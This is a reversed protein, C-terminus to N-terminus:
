HRYTQMEVKDAGVRFTVAGSEDTRFVRCGIDELKALTDPHPFRSFGSDRCSIVCISPGVASLFAESSSTRSGHHPVVLVDSRLFEKRNRCLIEEGEKELDGTFLFATKGFSIKLVMSNNNLRSGSEPNSLAPEGPAPHLVQVQVGHIDRGEALDDPFLRRIKKSEIIDMLEAYSETEVRDGNSWFERPAFARAVFRLGNMHDAQPHSLVLYDITRIKFRWLAPAVVMRGVDFRDGSFGGGDILMKKGRPFEVLAASGQGVDLFTVRLDRHFCVHHLLYAADALILALAVCMGARAWRSRRFALALLMLAYLLVLEAPSPTMMWVSSGPVDSWFRILGMMGDAGLSALRLLAGAAAESVFLALVSLLGLPFVWFGLIPLTTVNAPVAVLPVQHFYYTTIPLLFVTAALSVTGLGLAHLYVRNLLTGGRTDPFLTKPFLGMLPPVFWLIGAVAMFSLQFSISFLAQPDLALVVVGALALTSWTERERGMVLSALFALVMVMARQSSVHFGSIIAYGVAPICALVAAVCRIDVALLLRSFCSLLWRFASFAIWAILGIHLGSVALVHGLGTRAFRERLAKDIGRPDGLILAQFFANSEPDLRKELLARVPRRIGEALVQMLPLAGPGMPVIYRADSVNAACAYGKMRMDSEYDYRGPNNFNAFPRLRAPFRIRQGPVVDRAAPDQGYVKVLLDEGDIGMSGDGWFVRTARVRLRVSDDDARPPDMVVGEVTLRDRQSAIALLRSPRHGASDLVIGALFFTLLIFSFRAKSPMFFVALLSGAASIAAPVTWGGGFARVEHGALIGAAFALFVPILPRSFM